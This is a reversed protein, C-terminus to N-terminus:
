PAIKADSSVFRATRNEIVDIGNLGVASGGSDFKPLAESPVYIPADKRLPLVKLLLEKSYIDPAFRQLGIEFTNGNYFNDDILKGDLYLRAVDGVYHIRLLIDRDASTDAPLKIRWVAAAAFDADTPAEAVKGHGMKIQRAPGAAQVVEATANLPTNPPANVTYRQFVGDPESVALKGTNLALAIPAVPLSASLTKTNLILSAPSPLLSVGFTKADDTQLNLANGDVTMDARTLCITDRGAIKGKWCGLSTAEDLLIIVSERGDTARVRAAAETGPQLTVVSEGDTSNLEGNSAQVIADNTDFAFEAPVGPTQAFVTYTTKGQVLRCIPQATAYSLKAGGLDLNFPWFFSADAPVTIPERPISLTGDTLRVDFQIGNKASMPQLRQYNNVFLFGAHGDTRVAWRLPDIDSSKNPRVVPLVSPMPALQQGFDHLFLHLRRLMGYHPRIQGYEGLPAQFDYAKVPLDNPYGSAQSEQLTSLQGDPNVGGHYMYYGLLNCGSGLKVLALAYIDRPDIHIRRHYSTMMGGGMECCLYPYTQASQPETTPRNGFQDNGIESDLREHLFLFANGYKGVTPLLSRDWFGAPYAGYMPLLENPPYVKKPAPWGTRTYLPVDMGADRAIQKLHLMYGSPGGYENEVQIGIVPGGDKWLQGTLQKGIEQYLKTVEALYAPDNSRLKFGKHMMWDPFGGNRCEGHAWPGCRIFVKLGVQGAISVFERLNKNGTWDFKGEIEEHHIWFVYSSVIDIGGAKMKLLEERWENEPCRSFHFEGMAGMWPKGDVLLSVHDATLEEGDPARTTGLQFPEGRPRASVAADVMLPESAFIPTAACVVVLTCLVLSISRSAIIFSL